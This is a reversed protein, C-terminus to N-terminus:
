NWPSRNFVAELLSSVQAARKYAEAAHWKRSFARREKFFTELPYRENTTWGSSLASAITFTFFRTDVTTEVANSAFHAQTSNQSPFNKELIFVHTFLGTLQHLPFNLKWLYLNFSYWSENRTADSSRYEQNTLMIWRKSWSDFLHYMAVLKGDNLISQITCNWPNHFLILPVHMAIGKSFLFSLNEERSDKTCNSLWSSLSQSLLSRQIFTIITSFQFDLSYRRFM